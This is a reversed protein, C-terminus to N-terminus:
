REDDRNASAVHASSVIEIEAFQRKGVQFLHKSGVAVVSKTDSIKEGDIRVGGQEILRNAASTSQTLGASKLLQAVSISSQDIPIMRKEVNEPVERKQSRAAFAERARQAVEAGHFRATIERALEFKIEMPNRGAEVERKFQEIEANNRFSLLDFYRWMLLDSISMLKGFMDDPPETVGIYNGLSKSMKNVGDLGELLPMTLVVQPQQGFSEQLQRGM